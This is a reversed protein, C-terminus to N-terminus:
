MFIGDLAQQINPKIEKWNFELFVPSKNNCTKNRNLEYKSDKM